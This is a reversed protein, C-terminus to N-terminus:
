YVAVCGEHAKDRTVIELIFPFQQKIWDVLGNKPYMGDAIVKQLRSLKTQAKQLV